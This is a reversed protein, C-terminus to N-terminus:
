APVECDPSHAARDYATVRLQVALNAGHETGDLAALADEVAMTALTASDAEIVAEIRATILYRHRTM